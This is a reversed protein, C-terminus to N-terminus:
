AFKLVLDNIIVAKSQDTPATNNAYVKGGVLKLDANSNENGVSCIALFAAGADNNGTQLNVTNSYAGVVICWTPTADKLFYCSRNDSYSVALRMNMASALLVPVNAANLTMAAKNGTVGGVYDAVRASLLPGIRTYVANNGSLQTAEALLAQVEAKTPMTGTYFLISNATTTFATPVSASVLSSYANRMMANATAPLMKM